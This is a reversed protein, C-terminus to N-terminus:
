LPGGLFPTTAGFRRIRPGRLGRPDQRSGAVLPFNVGFFAGSEYPGPPGLAMPDAWWPAAQDVSSQASARALENSASMDAYWQALQLATVAWGGPQFNGGGLTPASPSPATQYIAEPGREVPFTRGLKSRRAIEANRAAKARRIRDHTRGSGGHKGFLRAVSYAAAVILASAGDEELERGTM